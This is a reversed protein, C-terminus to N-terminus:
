RVIIAAWGNLNTGDYISYNYGSQDSGPVLAGVFDDNTLLWSANWFENALLTGLVWLAGVPGGAAVKLAVGGLLSATATLAGRLVQTDTKIECATDDDEWFLVHYGESFLANFDTNQQETWILVDGNWTPDNQDFTREPLAHEGSCSLDSGYQSNNVDTPGHVHVEIEPNGKTWPEHLDSIHSSTMYFGPPKYGYGGGGGCNDGCEVLPRLLRRSVLTGIAQGNQDDENKWELMNLPQDFRTEAPVISITPTAPAVDRSVSVQEGRLNFAIMTGSDELQSVVLLDTGGTWTSRHAAVPMYIELPRVAQLAASLETSTMGSRQAIATLTSGELFKRLEIKHEKFPANRLRSKLVDRVTPDGLSRAVAKTLVTLAQRDPTGISEGLSVTRRMDGSNTVRAADTCASVLTFAVVGFVAVTTGHRM